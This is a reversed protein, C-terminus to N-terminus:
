LAQPMNIAYSGVAKDHLTQRQPDWLPWALDLIGLLPIFSLGAQALLRIFATGFPLLQGRADVIKIKMVGQGISSGRQSVLHVRNFLGVALTAAPFLALMCCCGLGSLGQLGGSDFVNGFSMTSGLVTFGIAYLVVMVVIVFVSDILYGIVRNAWVAYQGPFPGAFGAAIAGPQVYPGGGPHFPAGATPVPSVPAAASQVPRVAAYPQWAAMGERWVPTDNRVVGSRYLDDLTSEEIPGVQRGNDSYYWTM